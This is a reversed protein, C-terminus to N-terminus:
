YPRSKLAEQLEKRGFVQRIRPEEKPEEPAPTAGAVHIAPASFLRHVEAAGCAPCRVATSEVEKLSRFLRQFVENCQACRYEYIPM